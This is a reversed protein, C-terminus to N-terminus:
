PEMRFFGNLIQAPRDRDPQRCHMGGHQLGQEPSASSRARALASWPRDPAPLFGRQGWRSHPLQVGKSALPCGQTAQQEGVYRDVM